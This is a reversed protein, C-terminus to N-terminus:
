ARLYDVSMRILLDLQELDGVSEDGKVIHGRLLLKQALSMLAHTTTYYYVLADVDKRISGDGQGREIAEILMLQLHSIRDEYVELKKVDVQERVMFADFEHIFSVFDTHTEYLEIFVKLICAVRELGSAKLQSSERYREYLENIEQQWVVIAAEIALDVKTKFYRYVSAVGVQAEKAVDTMKAKDIGLTKFVAIAALVVEEKRGEKLLEIEERRKNKLNM